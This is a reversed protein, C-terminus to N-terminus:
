PMSKSSSNPLSHWQFNMRMSVVADILSRVCSLMSFQFYRRFNPSAIRLIWPAFDSRSGNSLAYLVKERNEEYITKTLSHLNPNDIGPWGCAAYGTVVGSTTNFGFRDPWRM